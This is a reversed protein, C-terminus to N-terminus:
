HNSNNKGFLPGIEGKAAKTINGRFTWALYRYYSPYKQLQITADCGKFEKQLSIM